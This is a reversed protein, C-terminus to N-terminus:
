GQVQLIVIDPMVNSAFIEYFVVYKTRDIYVGYNDEIYSLSAPYRGEISYCTIVARKLSQDLTRLGEARNASQAQDLGHIAITLAITVFLTPVIM